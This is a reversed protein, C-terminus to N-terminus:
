GSVLKEYVGSLRGWALAPGDLRFCRTTGRPDTEFTFTFPWGEAEFVESARPLLRNERWLLRDLM